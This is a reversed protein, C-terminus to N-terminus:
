IIKSFYNQMIKFFKEFAKWVYNLEFRTRAVYFHCVNSIRKTTSLTVLNPSKNSM